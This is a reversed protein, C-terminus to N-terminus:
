QLQNIYINGETDQDFSLTCAPRYSGDKERKYRM